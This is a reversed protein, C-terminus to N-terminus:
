LRGYVGDYFGGSLDDHVNTTTEFHESRADCQNVCYKVKRLHSVIHLGLSPHIHGTFRNHDHLHDGIFVPTQFDPPDLLEGVGLSKDIVELNICCRSSAILLSMAAFRTCSPFHNQQLTRHYISPLLVAIIKDPGVYPQTRETEVLSTTDWPGLLQESFM